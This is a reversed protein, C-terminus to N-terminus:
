APPTRFADGNVADIDDARRNLASSRECEVRAEPLIAAHITAVEQMEGCVAEAAGSNRGQERVVALEVGGGALRVIRRRVVRRLRATGDVDAQAAGEALDIGEV